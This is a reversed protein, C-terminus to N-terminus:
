VVAAAVLLTWGDVVENVGARWPSKYESSCTDWGVSVTKRLEEQKHLASQHSSNQHSSKKKKKKQGKEKQMHHLKRESQMEVVIVEVGKQKVNGRLRERPQFM